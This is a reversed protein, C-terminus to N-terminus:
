CDRLDVLINPNNISTILLNKVLIDMFPIVMNLNDKIIKLEDDFKSLNGHAIDNRYNYLKKIITEFTNTNSGKFYKTYSFGKMFNNYLFRLKLTLQRSIITDSSNKPQYTILSEIISFYSLLKFPSSDSIKNINVYDLLAKEIFSHKENKSVLLNSVLSLTKNFDNVDSVTPIERIYKKTGGKHYKEYNDILLNYSGFPEKVIAISGDEEKEFGIEIISTLNLKSLKLSIRYSNTLLFDNYELVCYRWRDKKLKVISRENLNEPLLENEFYNVWGMKFRLIELHAKLWKIQHESAKRLLLDNNIQIYKSNSFDFLEDILIFCYDQDKEM